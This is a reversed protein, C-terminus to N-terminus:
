GEKIELVDIYSLESNELYFYKLNGIQTIYYKLGNPNEKSYLLDEIKEEPGIISEWDRVTVSLREKGDRLIEL